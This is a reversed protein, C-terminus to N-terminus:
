FNSDDTNINLDILGTHIATDEDEIENNIKDNIEDVSDLKSSNTETNKGKSFHM